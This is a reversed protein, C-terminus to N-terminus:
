TMESLTNVMEAIQEQSKVGTTFIKSEGERFGIITPISRVGLESGLQKGEEIDFKYFKVTESEITRSAQEFIPGMVKCPGCWDAYFDILVPTDGKILENFNSKM